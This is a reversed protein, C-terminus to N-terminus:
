FVRYVGGKKELEAMYDLVTGPAPSVDTTEPPSSTCITTMAYGVYGSVPAQSLKTDVVNRAVPNLSEVKTFRVEFLKPKAKEPTKQTAQAKATTPQNM